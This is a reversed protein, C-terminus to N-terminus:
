FGVVGSSGEAPNVVNGAVPLGGPSLFSAARESTLAPAFLGAVMEAVGELEGAALTGAAGPAAAAPTGSTGGFANQRGRIKKGM